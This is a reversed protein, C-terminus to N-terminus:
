SFMSSVTPSNLYMYIYIYIYINTKKSLHVHSAVHFSILFHSIESSWMHSFVRSGMPSKSSIWAVRPSILPDMFPLIKPFISNPSQSKPSIKIISLLRWLHTRSCILNPAYMPQNHIKSILCMSIKPFSLVRQPYPNYNLYPLRNQSNSPFEKPSWTKKLPPVIIFLNTIINFIFHM